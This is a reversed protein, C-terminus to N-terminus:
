PQEGQSNPGFSGPPLTALYASVAAIDADTMTKAVQTMIAGFGSNERTRERFVRLQASIFAAPQGALLPFQPNSGTHCAACPPVDREPIGSAFIVAGRSTEATRDERPPPAAGSVYAMVLRDIAADNLGSAVLQMYGSPRTGSRYEKLARRLYAESQSSLIPVLSSKPWEGPAGHCRVCLALGQEGEGFSVGPIVAGAGSLRRYEEPQMEPLREIFAVLPWVEDDRSYAIWAPMGTYKQGNHVIWFLERRSWQDVVEGLSPPEPLMATRIAAPPRGPAGHCAACGSEYHAAGLRIMDLSNLNAPPEPVANSQARVSQKRVQGLLWTTVDFHQRQASVNYFGSWIFAIALILAVAGAIAIAKWFEVLSLKDSEDM